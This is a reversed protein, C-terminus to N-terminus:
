SKKLITITNCLREPHAPDLVYPVCPEREPPRPEIDYGEHPIPIHAYYDKWRSAWLYFVDRGENISTDRYFVTRESRGFPDPGVRVITIM